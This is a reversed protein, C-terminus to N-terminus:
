YLSRTQQSPFRVHPLTSFPLFSFFFYITCSHFSWFLSCRTALECPIGETVRLERPFLAPDFHPIQETYNTISSCFLLLMCIFSVFLLIFMRHTNSILPFLYIYIYNIFAVDTLSYRLMWSTHVFQNVYLLLCATALKPTPPLYASILYCVVDTYRTLICLWVRCAEYRAIICLWM